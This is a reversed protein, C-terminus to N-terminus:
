EGLATRIFEEVTSIQMEGNNTTFKDFVLKLNDWLGGRLNAISGQM